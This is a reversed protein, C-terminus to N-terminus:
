DASSISASVNTPGSESKQDAIQITRVGEGPRVTENTRRVPDTSSCHTSVEESTMERNHYALQGSGVQDPGSQVYDNLYWSVRSAFDIM